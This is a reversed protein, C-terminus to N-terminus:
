SPSESRLRWLGDSWHVSPTDHLLREAAEPSVALIRAIVNTAAPGNVELFVTIRRSPSGEAALEARSKRRQPLAQLQRTLPAKKAVRLQKLISARHSIAALEAEIEEVTMAEYRQILEDLSM